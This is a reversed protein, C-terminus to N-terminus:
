CTLKPSLVTRFFISTCGGCTLSYGPTCLLSADPRPGKVFGQWIITSSSAASRPEERASDVEFSGRAPLRGADPLPVGRKVPDRGVTGGSKPGPDIVAAAFATCANGAGNDLAVAGCGAPEWVAAAGAASPGKMAL